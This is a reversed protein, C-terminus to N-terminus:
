ATAWRLLKAVENQFLKSMPVIFEKDICISIGSSIKKAHVYAFNDKDFTVFYFTNFSDRLFQLFKELTVPDRPRRLEWIHLLWLLRYNTVGIYKNKKRKQLMQFIAKVKPEDITEKLYKQYFFATPAYVSIDIHWSFTLEARLIKRGSTLTIYKSKIDPLGEHLKKDIYDLQEIPNLKLQEPVEVYLDLDSTDIVTDYFTSGHLHVTCDSLVERFLDATQRRLLM